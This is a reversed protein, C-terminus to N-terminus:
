TYYIIRTGKKIQLINNLGVNNNDMFENINEDNDDLGYFRHTLLIVNSDEEIIVSRESKGDLAISMLNSISFHLLNNLQIIVNADPIFSSTNGGNPTQMLDLDSIFTNYNKVLVDIVSLAETSKSYDGKLPFLVAEMQSSLVTAAMNQFLQKTAVNTVGIIGTRINQFQENLVDIRTKVNLTFRAPASILVITQHMAELPGSTLNQVASNANNLANTFAEAEEPLKIRKIAVKFNKNNKDIVTNIDSISPKATLANICSDDLNEKLLRANGQPDVATKPYIESITEILLGAIKTLGLGTADFSLSVPRVLIPGYLPHNLTWPRKDGASIRFAESQAIHDEGQFYIEMEFRRGKPFGPNVLTGILNPFEFAAINFEVSYPLVIWYPSYSKGDGCIITLTNELQDKWSM